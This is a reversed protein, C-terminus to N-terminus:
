DCFSEPTLLCKSTLPLVCGAEVEDANRQAPLGKFAGENQLHSPLGERETRQSLLLTMPTRSRWGISNMNMLGRIKAHEFFDLLLRHPTKSRGGTRLSSLQIRELELALCEGWLHLSM